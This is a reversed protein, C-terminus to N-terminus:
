MKTISTEDVDNDILYNEISNDETSVNESETNPEATISEILTSEDINSLQDEVSIEEAFETKPIEANQNMFNIGAIAVFVVSLVPVVFRPKIMLALWEIISSSKTGVVRQQIRTPLEDFYDAPVDFENYRPVQSLVPAEIKIDEFDDIRNQLKSNFNEFYDSDTKFPNDTKLKSLRPAMGKLDDDQDSINEKNSM